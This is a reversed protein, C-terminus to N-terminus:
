QEGFGDSGGPTQEALLATVIAPEALMIRRSISSLSLGSLAAVILLGDVLNTHFAEGTPNAGAPM